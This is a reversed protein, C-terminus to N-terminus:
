CGDPSSACTRRREQPSRVENLGPRRWRGPRPGGDGSRHPASKTSALADVTYEGGHPTEAGTPLPSRQPPSQSVLPLRLGSDGSRHPASKTSARRLPPGHLVVETEAGTPLPSRQPTSPRKMYAATQEPRREQPSRVENLSRTPAAWTAPWFDGSRHPASKTSANRALVSIPPPGWPRREQPSRVENLRHATRPGQGANHHSDGSRHPASKTSAPQPQDMGRRGGPRGEQPSRAENLRLRRAAIVPGM